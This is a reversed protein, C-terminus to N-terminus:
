APGESFRARPGARASPAGAPDARRETLINGILRIHDITASAAADPDHRAIAEVIAEHGALSARRRRASQHVERRISAMWEATVEVVRGLLPNHTTRAVVQHFRRDMAAFDARSPARAMEDLVATLNRIDSPTARQAARAAIPPEIAERFDLITRVERSAPELLGLLSAGLGRGDTEKVVTGRGQERTVLGKLTLEHIAERVSARSVGLLVALERESPLRTGPSVHGEAIMGDLLSSLTEPVRSRNVALRSWDVDQRVSGSRSPRKALRLKPAGM